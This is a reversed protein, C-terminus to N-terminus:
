KFLDLWVSAKIGVNSGAPTNAISRFDYLYYPSLQASIRPRHYQVGAGFMFNHFFKPQANIEFSHFQEDGLYFSEYRVQQYAAIDFSTGAQFLLSWNRRLPVYYKLHVPVSVLSTRVSIDRIQDYQAPLYARYLEVFETGTAANFDRLEKHDELQLQAAQVGLSVGFNETPFLEIAPGVGVGNLTAGTEIGVRPQLSSLRFPPRSQKEPQTAPVPVTTPVMTPKQVASDTRVITKNGTQMRVSDVPIAATAKNIVRNISDATSESEKTLSPEAPRVPSNVLADDGVPKRTRRGSQNVREKQIQQATVETTPQDRSEDTEGAHLPGPPVSAKRNTATHQLPSGARTTDESVPQERRTEGVANNGPRDPELRGYGYRHEVVTRQVVYVTDVRHTSAVPTPRSSSINITDTRAALTKTLQAMVQQNTHLTYLTTLWGTLMLASLVWGGYPLLRAWFGLPLRKRFRNWANPQYGPRVSELNKKMLRDFRENSM